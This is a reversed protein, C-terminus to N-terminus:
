KANDVEGDEAESEPIEYSEDYSEVVLHSFLLKRNGARFVSIEFLAFHGDRERQVVIWGHIKMKAISMMDEKIYLFPIHNIWTPSLNTFNEGHLWKLKLNWFRDSDPISDNEISLKGDIFKYQEDNPEKNM